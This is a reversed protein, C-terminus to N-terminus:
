EVEGEVRLSLGHVRFALAVVAHKLLRDSEEPTAARWAPVRMRDQDQVECYVHFLEAPEDPDPVMVVRGRLRGPDQGEYVVRPMMPDPADVASAPADKPARRRRKM